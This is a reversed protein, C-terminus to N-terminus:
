DVYFSGLQTLGKDSEGILVKKGLVDILYLAAKPSLARRELVEIDSTKNEGQWKQMTFKRMLYTAGYLLAVMAALAMITKLLATFFDTGSSEPVNSVSEEVFFLPEESPDYSETEQAVLPTAWLAVLCLLSRIFQM